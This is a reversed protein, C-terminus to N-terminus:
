SEETGSDMKILTMLKKTSPAQVQLGTHYVSIPM